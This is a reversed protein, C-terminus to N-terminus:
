CKGTWFSTKKERFFAPLVWEAIQKFEPDRLWYWGQILDGNSSFTSASLRVEHAGLGFAGLFLVGFCVLIVLFPLSRM